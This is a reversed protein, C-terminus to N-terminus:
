MDMPDAERYGRARCRRGMCSRGLRWSWTGHRRRYRRFVLPHVIPSHSRARVLDLRHLRPQSRHVLQNPNSVHVSTRQSYSHSRKDARARLKLRCSLLVPSQLSPAPLPNPYLCVPPSSDNARSLPFDLLHIPVLTAFFSVARARYRNNSNMSIRSIYAFFPINDHLM